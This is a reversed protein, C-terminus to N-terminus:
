KGALRGIDYSTLKTPWPVADLANFETSRSFKKERIVHFTEPCPRHHIGEALTQCNWSWDEHGFGAQPESRRNPNRLVLERPAFCLSTWCNALRLCDADFAPDMSDPHVMLWPTKGFFLNVAPHLICPDDLIIAYRECATLWDQCWFDDGDLFAVHKGAAMAAGTNRSIAPDGGDIVEVRLSQFRPERAIAETLEDPRDCIVLGEVTLGASRAFEVAQQFNILTPVGLLGERHLNLVGTIAVPEKAVINPGRQVGQDHPKKSQSATRREPKTLRHINKESKDALSVVRGRYEAPIAYRECFKDAEDNSGTLIADLQLFGKHALLSFRKEAEGSIASNWWAQLQMYRSLQRSYRLWTNTCLPSDLNIVRTPALGLLVVLFLDSFSEDPMLPQLDSLGLWEVQPPFPDKASKGQSDILLITEAPEIQALIQILADVAQNSEKTSVAPLCILTDYHTKALRRRIARQVFYRTDNIPPINAWSWPGDAVGPEIDQILKLRPAFEPSEMTELLRGYASELSDEQLPDLAMGAVKEIPLHRVPPIRLSLPRGEKKGKRIYHLFADTSAPDLDPNAELYAVPDFEAFPRRGEARGHALYHDLPDVAAAVVDPNVNAYYEPDFLGSKAIIEKETLRFPFM